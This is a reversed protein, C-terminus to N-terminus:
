RRRSRHRDRPSHEAPSREHQCNGDASRRRCALVRSLSDIPVAAVRKASASEMERLDLHAALVARTVGAADRVPTSVTLTPRGTRGEPYIPQTFTGNRGETYYLQTVAFSGIESPVTSYRVRGGPVQVLRLESASFAAPELARLVEGLSATDGAVAANRVSPLQALFVLSTRHRELWRTLERADEEAFTELRERLRDRLASEARNYSAATAVLVTGVSLTLFAATLRASLSRRLLDRIV